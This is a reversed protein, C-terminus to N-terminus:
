APGRLEDILEDTGRGLDLVGYVSDVPDRERLKHAVLRGGDEHFELVEGARIGLQKRLQVPITVQGKESVVAKM